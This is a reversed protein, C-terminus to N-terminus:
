PNPSRDTAVKLTFNRIYAFIISLRKEWAISALRFVAMMCDKSGKVGMRMMFFLIRLPNARKSKREGFDKWRQSDGYVFKVLQPVVDKNSVFNCGCLLSDKKKVHRSITARFKYKEGYIDRFYLEVDDEPKISFPVNLELGIGTFSIDKIEGQAIQNLRPFFVNVKGKAWMRHTRRIQRRELFVGLSAMAIFFNFIVWTVTIAIVGRYLPYQFWKIIALPISALVFSVMILYPIVRPSLFENELSKGKPTVKFTPSYPNLIASFVVPILFISQVSEYLESFLPWRLKGHLFDMTIVACMVQPATYALVQIFSAHYIKLGFLLFATPAIFFVFRSFGFFWFILSNLYCLRQYLKLGHIRFPNKLLFIQMMGQAWRSRQLIFDEFTDPSLGCVMPRDIYVSNYGKSHLSLTTEADETITDGAFGGVEELYKRRLIAASGCFYSSNWFDLSPHISRYFMDNECPADSFIALNKELPNPNIFFHPTQVLFLRKDKLFWGATNKLIDRTPVHDCDLVLILESNTHQLAHSLNGAKAHKNTERTIYNIGIERAMRQLSHYREWAISSSEPNNRRVVTSGDDLIHIRFKDKPYDIQTAAIATIRVIDEPENYTPIFIDVTPYENHDEPLPISKRKLPWINTFIGLFGVLLVHCEALYLVMTGIFDFPGTYLLTEFTRWFWYRLSVFVVIVIFIIRLPPRKFREVRNFITLLGILGWGVIFQQSLKLYMGALYLLSIGAICAAICILVYLLKERTLKMM